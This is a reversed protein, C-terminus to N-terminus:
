GCVGCSVPCNEYLDSMQTENLFVRWLDCDTGAVLDCGCDGQFPTTYNKNDECDTRTPPSSAVFIGEVSGGYEENTDTHQIPIYRRCFNCSKPCADRVMRGNRYKDCFQQNLSDESIWNCTKPIVNKITFNFDPDDDCCLGCSQPCNLRVESNECLRQRRTEKNRIWKCNKRTENNFLYTDSNLCPVSLPVDLAEITLDTNVIPDLSPEEILSINFNQELAEIQELSEAHELDPFVFSSSVSPHLVPPQDITKASKAQKFPTRKRRISQAVSVRGLCLFPLVTVIKM